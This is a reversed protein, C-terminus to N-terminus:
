FKFFYLKMLISLSIQLFVIFLVPISYKKWQNINTALVSKLIYFTSHLFASLIVIWRIFHIPLTCLLCTPIYILLSYGYITILLDLNKDLASKSCLFYLILPILSIYLYFVSAAVTVIHFDYIWEMTDDNNSNSLYDAFNACIGILVILTTCIWFPGYFDARSDSHNFSLKLVNEFRKIIHSTNIDFYYKYYNLSWISSTSKLNTTSSSSSTTTTNSSINNENLLYNNQTTSSFEEEFELDDVSEPLEMQEIPIEM